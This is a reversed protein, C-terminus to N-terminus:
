VSVYFPWLPALGVLQALRCSTSSMNKRMMAKRGCKRRTIEHSTWLVPYWVLQWVPLLWPITASFRILHRPSNLRFFPDSVKCRALMKCMGFADAVHRHDGCTGRQRFSSSRMVAYPGSSMSLSRPKPTIVGIAIGIVTRNVGTRLLGWLSDLSM